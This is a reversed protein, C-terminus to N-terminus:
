GGDLGNSRDYVPSDIIYSCYIRYADDNGMGQFPSPIDKVLVLYALRVSALFVEYLMSKVAEATKNGSASTIFVAEM